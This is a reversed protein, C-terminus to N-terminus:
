GRQAARVRRAAAPRDSAINPERSGFGVPEELGPAIPDTLWKWVDRPRPSDYREYELDSRALVTGVGMLRLVPALSDPEFTGHQMRRDLAALLNVSGRTGFPLLERGVWPRDTLGPTIPDVTNGWRYAAFLSGPVELVRTGDDGRDLAQAADDWYQPIEEDRLIRESLYGHRWM